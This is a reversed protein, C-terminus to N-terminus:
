FSAKGTLKKISIAFVRTKRIYKDIHRKGSDIFGPSYKHLLAEMAVQRDSNFVEEIDGSVIVSKYKTTFEEPLVESNGVVCFSVSKNNKINDIKRGDVACHFFISDNVVCYNLPVGYPENNASLTSLVGYEASSLLDMAEEDSIARDKRRLEEM